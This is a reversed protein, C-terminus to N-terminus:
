VLVFSWHEMSSGQISTHSTKEQPLVYCLTRPEGTYNAASSATSSSGVAGHTMSYPTGPTVPRVQDLSPDRKHDESNRKRIWVRSFM